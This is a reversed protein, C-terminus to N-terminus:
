SYIKYEICICSSVGACFEISQQKICIYLLLLEESVLDSFMKCYYDCKQSEKARYEPAVMVKEIVWVKEAKFPWRGVFSTKEARLAKLLVRRVQRQTTTISGNRHYGRCSELREQISLPMKLLLTNRVACCVIFHLSDLHACLISALCM